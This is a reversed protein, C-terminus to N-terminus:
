ADDEPALLVYDRSSSGFNLMDKELLEYYRKSEIKKKNLFTGNSSELDMIYPCIKQVNNGAGDMKTKLKFQIVAHQKSCSIHDTRIDAVRSERGIIFCSQRHIHLTNLVDDGKFVYVRWRRDPMAANPPEAHKLPIGNKKQQAAKELKGSKNYDPKDMDKEEKKEEGKEGLGWEERTAKRPEQEEQSDDHRVRKPKERDVNNEREYTSRKDGRQERRNDDRRPEDRDGRRRHDRDRGRDRDRDRDRDRGRDRDRDRERDGRDRGGRGSM